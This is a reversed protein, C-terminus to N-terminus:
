PLSYNKRILWETALLLIVVIFWFISRIPHIYAEILEEASTLRGQDRLTDWFEQIQNYIFFEGSSESAIASLFADNRVTNILESSSNEILFEGSQEDLTRSGKRATATFSYLGNSLSEFQISYRGSGNNTLNFVRDNGSEDILHFEITADSEAEGSENVLSANINVPESSTFSTKSPSITLLREDPNNSAWTIVNLFLEEVFVRETENSSQFLRFWGWAAIHARRSNGRDTIALVPNPTVMNQFQTNLLPIIDVSNATTRLSTLVPALADYNVENVELIPHEENTQNPVINLEFIQTGQNRILSIPLEGPSSRRTRPLEVYLTPTQTLVEIQDPLWNSQPLGHLIILDLDDLEPTEQEVFSNGGLWTLTTLEYAPDSRLLSRIAKVDPHIESAIHLVRTKSDLVDISFTRSNNETSWEEALPALQVQFAQLGEETLPIEFRVTQVEESATFSIDKSEVVSGSGDLITLATESGSFGNQSIEIEVIHNSETYGTNNTLVNNITVDRVLSTDGTAITYIPISLGAAQILPNRGITIVGDSIIIAANYDDQLEEIQTIAETFNTQSENRSLSDSSQIPRIDNGFAFYDFTANQQNNFALEDLLGIYSQAGQYEGKSIDMSESNDFLVMLRPAREVVESKFFVPNFLLLALIIFTIARLSGLLWRVPPALSKQKQYSFLAVIVLVILALVIVTPSFSSQFGQFEMLLM